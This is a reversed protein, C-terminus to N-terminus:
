RSSMADCGQYGPNRHPVTFGTTTASPTSSGALSLSPVSGAAAYLSRWRRTLLRADPCETCTSNTAIRAPQYERMAVRVQIDPRSHFHEIDSLRCWYIMREINAVMGNLREDQVSSFDPRAFESDSIEDGFGLQLNRSRTRGKGPFGRLRYFWCCKCFGETQDHRRCRVSDKTDAPM